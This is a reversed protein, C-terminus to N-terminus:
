LSLFCYFQMVLNAKVCYAKMVKFSDYIKETNWTTPWFIFKRSRSSYQMGFTEEAGSVTVSM